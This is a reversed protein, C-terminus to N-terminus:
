KGQSNSQDGAVLATTLIYYSICSLVSWLEIREISGRATIKTERGRSQSQAWDRRAIRSPDPPDLHLRYDLPRLQSSLEYHIADPAEAM